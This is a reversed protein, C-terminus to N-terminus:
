RSTKVVRTASLYANGARDRGYVQVTYTTNSSLGTLRVSHSTGLAQSEVTSATVNFGVGYRVQDTAAENTAWTVTVTNTTATAVLNIVTPPTTDVTWTSSAGQPDVQGFMDVARVRFTHDGDALNWYSQPSTCTTYDGGDLSCQFGSATQDATFEFTALNMANPNESPSRSTIITKIPALVAFTTTTAPARNGAGDTAFVSFTHSGMAVNALSLPSGCATETGNDLACTFTASEDAQFTITVNSVQVTSSISTVPARTDVTWRVDQVSDNGAIDLARVSMVHAGDALGSLALPSACAGFGAEDVNCQYTVEESANFTFTRRDLNTTARVDDASITFQPAVRDLVFDHSISSSVNGASDVASVNLSYAGDALGTLTLPNSATIVNGNLKIALTADESVSFAFKVESANLNTASSPLISAFSLTPATHDINWSVSVDQSVNGAVDRASLVVTHTGDTLGTATFPSACESADAGDLKCTVTATEDTSFEVAVHDASTLGAAPTVTGLTLLPARSDNKWAVSVPLGVNGALDTARVEFYHPGDSLGSAVVPSQCAEFPQNDMSCAFNASENAAFEFTRTAINTIEAAPEVKVITTTPATVDVTWNFTAPSGSVNGATDMARVAFAHTGESVGSVAMPSACTTFLANDLSCQFSATEDSSFEFSLSQQATLTPLSAANTIMVTPATMDVSWTYTQPPTENVGSSTQSYVRFTHTGSALGVYAQPSSCKGYAVGDLSCWFTVGTQDASFSLSINDSSTSSTAPTVADIHTVAAPKPQPNPSPNPGPNPAPPCKGFTKGKFHVVANTVKVSKGNVNLILKGKQLKLRLLFLEFSLGGNLYMKHLKFVGKSDKGDGDMRECPRGGDQRSLKIGNLDLTITEEVKHKGEITAELEVSELVFNGEELFALKALSVLVQGNGRIEDPTVAIDFDKSCNNGIPLCASLTTAIATLTFAHIAMMSPASLKRGM